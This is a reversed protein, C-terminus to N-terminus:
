PRFITQMKEVAEKCLPCEAKRAAKSARERMQGADVACLCLHGCPVLCVSAAAERCVVCAPPAQRDWAADLLSANAASAAAFTEHLAARAARLEPLAMDADGGRELVALRQRLRSVEGDKADLKTRM